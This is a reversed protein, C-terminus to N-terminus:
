KIYRGNNRQHTRLEDMHSLKTSILKDLDTSIDELLVSAHQGGLLHPLIVYDAGASYLSLASEVEYSTVIVKAYKNLHRLKKILLLSDHHSPITSVFIKVNKLHLSNLLEDDGVDGYVCPVNKKMLSFVVDPNFDVILVDNHLKKLTSYISSGIRDYGVLVVDHPKHSEHHSVIKNTASLKDFRKLFPLLKHYIVDEFKMFYATAIISALTTLIVISLFGETILQNRLGQHVAILAFESVQSLSIASLFATRRNYGFATVTVFTIFPIIFVTLLLLIITPLAVGSLSTFSLKLGMSVFFLIAFFDRLSKVKSIIEVNYPLNGLMLGAVFSGIAISFGISAFALSFAFCIALSLVFFLEQNKAAFKFLKPFIFKSFLFAVGILLVAQFVSFGIQVISSSGASLFSLIIVAVVDQMLLSGIVIRGHLTDLQQKDSLLKIVVMTSSFLLVIGAFISEMTSFGFLSFIGFGLVFSASMQFLTGLSAVPGIDKLKSFDFELGVIFLLFAIGIESLVDIVAMDTVLGLVPGLVVGMIIYSSILPQKLLRALFGGVAAAIVIIGIDLFINM